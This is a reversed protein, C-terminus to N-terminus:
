VIFDHVDPNEAIFESITKEIVHQAKGNIEANYLRYICQLHPFGSTVAGQLTCNIASCLFTAYLYINM